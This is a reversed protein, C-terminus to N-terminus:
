CYSNRKASSYKGRVFLFLIMILDQSERKSPPNSFVVCLFFFYFVWLMFCFLRIKIKRRGIKGLTFCFVGFQFLQIKEASAVRISYSVTTRYTFYGAAASTRFFLVAM